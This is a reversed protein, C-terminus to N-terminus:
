GWISQWWGVAAAAGSIVALGVFVWPLWGMAKKKGTDGFFFLIGGLVLCLISIVGAINRFQDTSKTAADSVDGFPDKDTNALVPIPLTSLATTATLVSMAVTYQLRDKGKRVKTALLDVKKM